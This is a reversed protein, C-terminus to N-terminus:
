GRRRRSGALVTGITPAIRTYKPGEISERQGGGQVVTPDAIEEADLSDLGGLTRWAIPTHTTAYWAM